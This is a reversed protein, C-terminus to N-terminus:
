RSPGNQAVVVPVPCGDVLRVVAKELRAKPMKSLPQATLTEPHGAHSLGNNDCSVMQSRRAFDPPSRRPPKMKLSPSVYRRARVEEPTAAHAVKPFPMRLQDVRQTPDFPKRQLLYGKQGIVPAAEPIVVSPAVPAAQLLAVLTLASLVM